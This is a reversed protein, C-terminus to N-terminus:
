PQYNNFGIVASKMLKQTTTEEPMRQVHGFMFWPFQAVKTSLPIANCM